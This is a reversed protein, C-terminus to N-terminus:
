KREGELLKHRPHNARYVAMTLAAAAAYMTSYSGGDEHLAYWRAPWLNEVYSAYGHRVAHYALDDYTAYVGVRYGLRNWIEWTEQTHGLYRVLTVRYPAGARM